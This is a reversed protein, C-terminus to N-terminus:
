RVVKSFSCSCTDKYNRAGYKRTHIGCDLIKIKDDLNIFARKKMRNISVNHNKSAIKNSLSTQTENLLVTRLYNTLELSKVYSRDVGKLKTHKENSIFCYAKPRTACFVDIPNSGMENKFFGLKSANEKSFLFHDEDFNSTDLTASIKQYDLNINKSRLRIILSDTDTYLLHARIGFAPKIVNYFYNYM